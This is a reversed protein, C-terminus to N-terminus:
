YMSGVALDVVTYTTNVDCGVVICVLPQKWFKILGVYRATTLMTLCISLMHCVSHISTSNMDLVRVVIM